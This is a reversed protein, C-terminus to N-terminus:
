NDNKISTEIKDIIQKIAKEKSEELIIPSIDQCKITDYV